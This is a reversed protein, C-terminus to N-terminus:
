AAKRILFQLLPLDRKASNCRGCSPAINTLDGDGGRAIPDIHDLSTAPQGCYVCPDALLVPLFDLAEPTLPVGRRRSAKAALQAKNRQEWARGAARVKERNAEAWRARYDPNKEFFERSNEADRAKQDATRRARYAATKQRNAEAWKEPDADRRAKAQAANREKNAPDAHWRRHYESRDRAAM